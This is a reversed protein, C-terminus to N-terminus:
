WVRAPAMADRAGHGENGGALRFIPTGLTQSYDLAALINASVNHEQDGCGVSLILLTDRASMHSTRLWAEFVTPLGEDNPRATLESVNDSQACAEINAQRRFDNVPHSVNSASGGVGRIFRGGQERTQAFLDTCREIVEADLGSSTRAFEELFREIFSM